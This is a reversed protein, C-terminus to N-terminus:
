GKRQGATDGKQKQVEERNRQGLHTVGPPLGPQIKPSLRLPQHFKGRWVFACCSSCITVMCFHEKREPASPFAALVAATPIIQAQIAADKKLMQFCILVVSVEASVNM